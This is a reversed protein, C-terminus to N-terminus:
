SYAEELLLTERVQDTIEISIITRKPKEPAEEKFVALFEQLLILQKEKCDTEKYFQHGSVIAIFFIVIFIDVCFMWFGISKLTSTQILILMTFVEVGLAVIFQSKFLSCEVSLKPKAQNM